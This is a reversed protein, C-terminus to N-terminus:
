GSNAGRGQGAAWPRQWGQFEAAVAYLLREVRQWLHWPAPRSSRPGRLSRCIRGAGRSTGSSRAVPQGCSSARRRRGAREQQAPWHEACIAVALFQAATPGSASVSLAAAAPDPNISSGFVTADIDRDPAPAKLWSSRGASRRRRRPPSPAAPAFQAADQGEDREARAVAGRLHGEPCPWKSTSSATAAAATTGASSRRRCGQTRRPSSARRSPRRAATGLKLSTTRPSAAMAGPRRPWPRRRPARPTRRCRRRPCGRRTRPRPAVRAALAKRSSALAGRRKRRTRAFTM